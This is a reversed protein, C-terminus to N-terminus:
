ARVGERVIRELESRPIRRSRMISVSRIVEAKVLKQVQRLSISTRHAFSRLTLLDPLEAIAARAPDGLHDM